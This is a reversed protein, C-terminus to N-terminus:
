AEDGASASPARTRLGVCDLAWFTDNYVLRGTMWPKWTPLLMVQFAADPIRASPATFGHASARQWGLRAYYGPDGELFVAPADLERSRHSPRTACHGASAAASITPLSGSRASSSCTWSNTRTDVWGPSLQVYGVPQEDIAAVLAPAPRDPRAELAQALDAVRGDDGFAETLLDRVTATDAPRANRIIV